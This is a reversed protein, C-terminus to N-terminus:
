DSLKGPAGAALAIALAALAAVAVAPVAVKWSIRLRPGVQYRAALAIAVQVLAAGACVVLVLALMENGQSHAAANRLGDDLAGRQRAAAILIASGAAAPVLTPLLALRRPYLILLVVLAVGVELMGGRSFTYYATLAMAPVAAAALAQLAIYRARAAAVLVLPIGMATFAALGNWYNLPYNLRAKVNPILRAVDNSPFWAPHLRSLLALAAVVAIATAVASVTRRLGDRGQVALAFAFVGAYMAIRGIEAASRGASDSWVVGIATWFGFAILLGLGVWGIWRIRAAPLVGVLAGLLVVWWVAIGVEGRIVEDYGGGKLALYLVLAFPLLWGALAPGIRGAVEALDVGAPLRARVSGRHATPGRDLTPMMQSECVYTSAM